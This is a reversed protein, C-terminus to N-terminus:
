SYDEGIGAAHPWRQGAKGNRRGAESLLELRATCPPTEKAAVKRYMTGGFM